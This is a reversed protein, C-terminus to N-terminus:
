ITTQAVFCILIASLLATAGVHNFYWELVHALLIKILDLFCRVFSWGSSLATKNCTKIRVCFLVLNIGSTILLLTLKRHRLKESRAHASHSGTLCVM